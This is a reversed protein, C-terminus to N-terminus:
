KCSIFPVENLQNCWDETIEIAEGKQDEDVVHNRLSCAHTIIKKMYEPNLTNLVNFFYERDPTHGKPFYDPLYMMFNIDNKLYPFLKKVSLEEYLPVHIMKVDKLKFLRKKDVLVAKLFNKNMM